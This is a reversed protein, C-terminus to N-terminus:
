TRRDPVTDIDAEIPQRKMRVLWARLLLGEVLWERNWEFVMVEGYTPVPM